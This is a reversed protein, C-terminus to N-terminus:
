VSVSFRRKDLEILWIRVYKMFDVQETTVRTVAFVRGKKIGSYRPALLKRVPISLFSYQCSLSELFVGSRDLASFESKLITIMVSIYSSLQCQVKM